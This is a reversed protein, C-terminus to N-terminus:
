SCKNEKPKERRSHPKIGKSGVKVLEGTDRCYLSLASGPLITFAGIFSLGYLFHISPADKTFPLCVGTQALERRLHCQSMDRLKFKIDEGQLAVLSICVCM